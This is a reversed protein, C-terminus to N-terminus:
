ITFYAHLHITGSKAQGRCVGDDDAFPQGHYPLLVLDAALRYRRSRVCPLSARLAQNCRRELLDLEPLNALLAQRVAETSPGAALGPRRRQALGTPYQRSLRHHAPHHGSLQPRRRAPAPPHSASRQGPSTGPRPYSYVAHYALRTVTINKQGLM